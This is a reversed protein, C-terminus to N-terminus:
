FGLTNRFTAWSFGAASLGFQVLFILALLLTAAPQVRDWYSTAVGKSQKVWLNICAGIQIALAAIKGLATVWTPKVPQGSSWHMTEAIFAIAVVILVATLFIRLRTFVKPPTPGVNGTDPFGNPIDTM